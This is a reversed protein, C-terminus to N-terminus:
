LTINIVRGDANIRSIAMPLYIDCPSGDYRDYWPSNIWWPDHIYQKAFVYVPVDKGPVLNLDFKQTKMM